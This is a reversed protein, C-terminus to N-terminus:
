PIQVSCNLPIDTTAMKPFTASTWTLYYKPTQFGHVVQGQSDKIAEWTRRVAIIDGNEFLSNASGATTVSTGIRDEGPLVPFNKAENFDFSADDIKYSKESAIYSQGLVDFQLTWTGSSDQFAWLFLGGAETMCNLATPPVQAKADIWQTSPDFITSVIHRSQRSDTAGVLRNAAYVAEHLILAARDTEGLAPWIDGSILILNDNFYNALQEASCGSPFLVDFSDDIDKLVTGAPTVKMNKEVSTVYYSVLAGFSGPILKLANQIQTDMPVTSDTINLGWMVKGEYLDLSQASTIAKNADRCVVSKGGGGDVGGVLAHAQFGFLFLLPTLLYKTNM